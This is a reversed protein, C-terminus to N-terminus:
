NTEPPADQLLANTNDKEEPTKWEPAITYYPCGSNEPTGSAILEAEDYDLSSVLVNAKNCVIVGKKGVLLSALRQGSRVLTAHLCTFCSRAVQKGAPIRYEKVVDRKLAKQNPEQIAKYLWSAKKTIPISQDAMIESIIELKESGAAILAQAATSAPMLPASPEESPTIKTSGALEQVRAKDLVSDLQSALGSKIYVSYLKMYKYAQTKSLGSESIIYEEFSPYAALYLKSEKMISLWRGLEFLHYEAGHKHTLVQNHVFHFQEEPTNGVIPTALETTTNTKNM